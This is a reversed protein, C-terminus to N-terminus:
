IKSLKKWKSWRNEEPGKPVNKKENKTVNRRSEVNDIKKGFFAEEVCM